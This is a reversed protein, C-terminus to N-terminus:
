HTALYARTKAGFYGAAPTIGVSKQWKALAARTFAGFKTTENGPSGPGTAAVVFGRNNLWVQLSKVDDGISGSQLDRKFGAAGGQLAQLQALLAALQAQLAAITSGTGPTAPIIAPTPPPTYGGGGGGGSSQM